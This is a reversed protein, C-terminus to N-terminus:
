DGACLYGPTVQAISVQNAPHSTQELAGNRWAGTTHLDVWGVPLCPVSALASKDPNAPLSSKNSFVSVDIPSTLSFVTM